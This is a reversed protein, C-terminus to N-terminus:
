DRNARPASRSSLPKRAESSILLRIDGRTGEIRSPLLFSILFSCTRIRNRRRDQLRRVLRGGLSYGIGDTSGSSNELRSPLPLFASRSVKAFLSLSRGPPRAFTFSGLYPSISSRACDPQRGAIPMSRGDASGEWPPATGRSSPAAFNMARLSRTRRSRRPGCWDSGPFGFLHELFIASEQLAVAAGPCRHSGDGFGMLSRLVEDRSDIPASRSDERLSLSQHEEGASRTWIGVRCWGHQHVAVILPYHGPPV